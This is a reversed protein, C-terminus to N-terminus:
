STAKREGDSEIEFAFDRVSGSAWLGTMFEAACPNSTRVAVIPKLKLINAPSAIGPGQGQVVLMKSVLEDKQGLEKNGEKLTIIKNKVRKNRSVIECQIKTVEQKTLRSCCWDNRCM